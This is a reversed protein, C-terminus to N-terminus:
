ASELLARRHRVLLPLVDFYLNRQRVEFEVRSGPDSEHVLVGDRLVRHVFDPSADNLIAVDLSLPAVAAELAEAAELPLDRLSRPSGRALLLAVDVDSEPGADGRAHSGFLYAAAVGAGHADLASRIRARLTASDM